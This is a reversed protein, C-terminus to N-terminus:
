KDKDKPIVEGNVVDYGGHAKIRRRVTKESIAMFEALSDLTIKEDIGCAEIAVELSKKQENKVEEPSKKNGLNNKWSPRSGDDLKIDKLIGTEDIRHVPYQFWMNVAEFKPYERLTGEVRWASRMSIINMAKAIEAEAQAAVDPTLARKAHNYMQSLSQEDDPGVHEDYYNFNTQKIANVYIDATVKAEQHKILEDTM